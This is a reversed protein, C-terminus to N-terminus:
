ITFNDVYRYCQIGPSFAPVFTTLRWLLFLVSLVGGQPVGELQSFTRSLTSGVRVSFSRDSLSILSLLLFPVWMGVSRLNTFLDGRWTSHYTKELDFFVAM